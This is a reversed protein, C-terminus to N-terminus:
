EAPLTMPPRAPVIQTQVSDVESTVLEALLEYSTLRVGLATALGIGLVALAIRAALPSGARARARLRLTSAEYGRDYELSDDIARAAFPDVPAAAPRKARAAPRREPCPRVRSRKEITEAILSEIPDQADADTWAAAGRPLELESAATALANAMALPSEFRDAPDKALARDVIAEVTEPCDPQVDRLRPPTQTLAMALTACPGKGQFPLRGAIMEFLVVGLSYVDARADLELGRIQEPSMYEPTGLVTGELTFRMDNPCDDLSAIGFDVLKATYGGAERAELMVNGPKVDRHVVGHESLAGLGALAQLAADIAAAIPLAGQRDIRAQLDEGEVLQMVFYPAGDDLEGFDFVRVVNRHQVRAAIRAERRFRGLMEDAASGCRDLHLVKIAVAHGLEDHEARYVTAHGGSGLAERVIWRDGIRQGPRLHSEVEDAASSM